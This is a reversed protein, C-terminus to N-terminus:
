DSVARPTGTEHSVTHPPAVCERSVMARATRDAACSGTLGEHGHLAAFMLWGPDVYHENNPPCGLLGPYQGGSPFKALTKEPSRESKEGVGREAPGLDAREMGAPYPSLGSM